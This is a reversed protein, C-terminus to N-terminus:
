KAPTDNENEAETFTTFGATVLINYWTFLKKIDSTYVRERDFTPLVKAFAESLADATSLTALDVTKGEHAEYTRTLVESLAMDESETYMSIDGLSVVRERGMIPQRKGTVLSEVILNGRGQSILRFLGPKGSISLITNLM